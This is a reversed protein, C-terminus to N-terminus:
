FMNSNHRSLTSRKICYRLAGQEEEQVEQAQLFDGFTTDESVPLDLSDVPLNESNPPTPILSQYYLCYCYM